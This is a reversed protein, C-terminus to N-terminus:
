DGNKLLKFVVEVIESAHLYAPRNRGKSPESLLLTKVSQKPLNQYGVIAGLLGGV